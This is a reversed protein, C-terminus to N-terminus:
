NFRKVSSLILIIDTRKCNNVVIAVTMDYGISKYELYSLIIRSTKSCISDTKEKQKKLLIKITGGAKILVALVSVIISSNCSNSIM